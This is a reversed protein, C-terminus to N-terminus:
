GNVLLVDMIRRIRVPNLVMVNNVMMNDGDRIQLNQLEQLDELDRVWNLVRKKDLSSSSLAM